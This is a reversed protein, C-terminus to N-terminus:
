VSRRYNVIGDYTELWAHSDEGCSGCVNLTEVGREHLFRQLMDSALSCCGRPFSLILNGSAKGSCVVNDIATRFKTVVIVLEDTTM